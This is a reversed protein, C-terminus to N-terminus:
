IVEDLEARLTTATTDLAVAKALLVRLVLVLLAIGACGAAATGLMLVMGPPVAEGPALIVGLALALLTAVVATGIIVDVYRFAARSFVTDRRVMTLLQWVCVLAVEITTLGAIGIGAVVWPLAGADPVEESIDVAMLPAIVIQGFLLGAFLGVIVVRLARIALVGM